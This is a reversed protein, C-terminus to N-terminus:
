INITMCISKNQKLLNVVKQYSMKKGDPRFGVKYCARLVKLERVEIVYPNRKVNRNLLQIMEKETGQLKLIGYVIFEKNLGYQFLDRNTKETKYLVFRIDINNSKGIRTKSKM